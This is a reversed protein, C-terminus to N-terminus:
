TQPRQPSTSRGFLPSQQMKQEYPETLQGGCCPAVPRGQRGNVGLVQTLHRSQLSSIAAHMVRRRPRAAASSEPWVAECADAGM